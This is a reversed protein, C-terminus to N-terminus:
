QIGLGAPGRRSSQRGSPGTRLRGLPPRRAACICIQHEYARLAGASFAASQRRSILSLLRLLSPPPQPTDTSQSGWPSWRESSLLPSRVLTSRPLPFARLGTAWFWALVAHCPAPDTRLTSLGTVPPQSRATPNLLTLTTPARM